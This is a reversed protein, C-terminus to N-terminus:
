CVLTNEVQHSIVAQLPTSCVHTPLKDNVWAYAEPGYESYQKGLGWFWVSWQSVLEKQIYHLWNQLLLKRWSDQFNPCCAGGLRRQWRVLNLELSLHIYIHYTILTKKKNRIEFNMLSDPLHFNSSPPTKLLLSQLQCIPLLMYLLICLRHCSM